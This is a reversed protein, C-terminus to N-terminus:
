EPVAVFAWPERIRVAGQGALRHPQRPPGAPDEPGFVWPLDTLGGSGPFNTTSLLEGRSRAILTRGRELGDVRTARAEPLLELGLHGHSGADHRRSGLAVVQPPTDA